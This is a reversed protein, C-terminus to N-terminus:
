LVVSIINCLVFNDSAIIIFTFLTTTTIMTGTNAGDADTATIDSRNMMLEDIDETLPELKKAAEDALKM